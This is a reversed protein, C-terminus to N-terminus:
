GSEVASRRTPLYLAALLLGFGLVCPGLVEPGFRGILVGIGAPLAAGALAAAGVQVGIARDAHGDGVREATTLTLLPFVPASALGVLMLGAAAVPGAVSGPVPLAVLAAGAVIGALSGTLVRHTGIREAVAGVLLRGVFLSGWYASVALGALQEGMGRGSTLLTYAWLGAGLEVGAYAVFAAVGRWVAPLALTRTGRVRTPPDPAPAPGDRWARVTA